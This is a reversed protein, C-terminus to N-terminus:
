AKEILSAHMVVKARNSVMEILIRVRGEDSGWAEFVGYLDKMPGSKVRVVDGPAFSVPRKITGSEKDELTCLGRIFDDHIPVPQYNDLLIRRVGRCWRIKHYEEETPAINAFLYNPFLPYKKLVKKRAHFVYKEMFPQYIGIGQQR